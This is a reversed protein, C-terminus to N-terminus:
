KGGKKRASKKSSTLFNLVNRRKKEQEKASLEKTLIALYDEKTLDPILQNNITISVGGTEESVVLTVADSVESIGVAARHRTGYEKPILISDSM